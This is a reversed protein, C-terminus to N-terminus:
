SETKPQAPYAAVGKYTVIFRQGTAKDTVVSLHGFNEIHESYIEFRGNQAPNPHRERDLKTTYHMMGWIVLMILTFFGACWLNLQQYGTLKINM